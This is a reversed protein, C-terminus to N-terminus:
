IIRYILYGNSFICFGLAFLGFIVNITFAYWVVAIDILIIGVVALVIAILLIIDDDM